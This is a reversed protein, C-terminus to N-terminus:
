TEVVVYEFNDRTELDSIIIVFGEDYDGAIYNINLWDLGQEYDGNIHHYVLADYGYPESSYSGVFQWQLTSNPTWQAYLTQSSTISVTSTSTIKTGGSSATFWGNFTHGTRSVTALTGYTSGYTVVKTTLSPTGGGNGNFTVTYQKATWRAYLTAASSYTTSTLAVYATKSIRQTGGSTATWYGTLTHGTRTALMNANFAEISSGYTVSIANNSPTTGGNANLGILFSNRTATQNVRFPGWSSAPISVTTGSVTPTSGGYTGLRTITAANLTFGTSVSRTITINQTVSSTKYTTPSVSMSAVGTGSSTTISYTPAEHSAQMDGLVTVATNLGSTVTPKWHAYLTHAGATTVTTGTEIKSGGTAATFWGIFIYDTRSTTALAGYTSAYTVYKSAPSPATGGNANFTVTYSNATWRAQLTGSAYKGVVNTAIAYNTGNTWGGTTSSTWRWASFTYGARTVTGLLTALTSSTEINYTASSNGGTGNNRDNTLTYTVTSWKAYLTVASTYTTNSLGVFTGSSNIRQTGTGGTGTFYGGFTYGARTPATISTPNLYFGNVCVISSTGGTGTQKDLTITFPAAANYQADGLASVTTNTATTTAPKWNATITLNGYPKVSTTYVPITVTNGNVTAQGNAGSLTWSHFRFNTYTGRTMTISTSTTKPQYTSISASSGTGGNQAVIINYTNGVVTIAIARASTQAMNGDGQVETTAGSGATTVNVLNTTSYSSYSWGVPITLNSVKFTSNAARAQYWDASNAQQVVGGVSIDALLGITSPNPNWDFYVNNMTWQAYLTVTGVFTNSNLNNYTGNANIYKTGGSTATWYGTFTYNTRTPPTISTPNINIGTSGTITSTGGTGGKRDLTITFVTQNEYQADGLATSATQVSGLLNIHEVHINCLASTAMTHLLGSAVTPNWHAYLTHNSTTLMTNSSTRKTGGSAATFWGIFAWNTRSVTALTGYTNNYIVGKSTPSPTGGGNANFTVTYPQGVRTEKITETGIVTTSSKPWSYDYQATDSTGIPATSTSGYTLTESKLTVNTYSKWTITYSLIVRIETISETGVVTTSTKPWSYDYQATDANGTPATSTSGYTLTERKAYTEGSQGYKYWTVTYSLLTRTENISETGTVTTSAKPWDYQYQATDTTGTPATSTSGYLRTEQKAVAGSYFYWTITYSKTTRTETITETGVVTTSSKPWAYDYQTTDSTGTPATSTAGYLLTESKLTAGSYAKWTITYSKTTRTETITENGTVSTSAKPWSYDYQATDTTGTPATSTSGYILNETKLTINSYSKWTITYVVDTWQAYLTIPLTYTSDTLAVYAGSSNIVQTGGAALTYYGKFTFHERTPPTVSAPTISFGAITTISNTGGTGGQKALTITVPHAVSYQANDLATMTTNLQESVNSKRVIITSYNTTVATTVVSTSSHHKVYLTVIGTSVLGDTADAPYDVATKVGFSSEVIHAHDATNNKGTVFTTVNTTILTNLANNVGPTRVLQINGLNTQLQETHGIVNIREAHIDSQGTSAISNLPTPTGHLVFMNTINNTVVTNLANNLLQDKFFRIASGSVISNINNNSSVDEGVVILVSGLNTQAQNLLNGIVLLPSMQIGYASSLSNLAETTLLEGVAPSMLFDTNLNNVADTIGGDRHLAVNGLNTQLQETRGIVNIHEVHLDSQGTSAISNLPFATADKIYITTSNESNSLEIIDTIINDKYVEISMSTSLNDLLDSVTKNDGAVLVASGLSTTSSNSVTQLLRDVSFHAERSTVLTHTADHIELRLGNALHLDNLYTSVNHLLPEVQNEKHQVSVVFETILEGRLMTIVKYPSVGVVGTTILTNANYNVPKTVYYQAVHKTLMTNLASPITEKVRLQINPVDSSLNNLSEYSGIQYMGIGFSTSLTELVDTIEIPDNYVLTDVYNTILTHVVNNITSDIVLYSVGYSTALTETKFVARDIIFSTVGTSSLTNLLSSADSDKTHTHLGFLTSLTQVPTTALKYPQISTTNDTNLTHIIDTTTKNDGVIFLVNNESVMSNSVPEVGPNYVLKINGLNTQLQETHGIINIREAHIDSQGTSAVGHVVEPQNDKVHLSVGFESHVNNLGKYPSIAFGQTNAISQISVSISDAIATKGFVTTINNLTSELEAIASIGQITRISVTELVTNVGAVADTVDTHKGYLGITAESITVNEANTLKYPMISLSANTSVISLPASFEKTITLPILSKFDTIIEVVNDDSIRYPSVNSPDRGTFVSVLDHTHTPRMSKHFTQINGLETNAKEIQHPISQLYSVDLEASSIAINKFNSTNINVKNGFVITKNYYGYVFYPATGSPHKFYADVYQLDYYPLVAECHAESTISNSVEITKVVPVALAISFGSDLLEITNYLNIIPSISLTAYSRVSAVTDPLIVIPSTSLTAYSNVEEVTDPLIISFLVSLTAYSNVSETHRIDDRHLSDFQISSQTTVEEVPFDPTMDKAGATVFCATVAAATLATLTINM